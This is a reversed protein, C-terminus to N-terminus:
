ISTPLKATVRVLAESVAPEFATGIGDSIIEFAAAPSFAPRYPRDSILADYVDCVRLVDAEPFIRDGKLGRPYGSGDQNEHHQEIVLGIRKGPLFNHLLEMGVTPHTCIYGREQADLHGPKNLVANEIGVKGVDHYLAAISTIRIEDDTMELELAVLRALHGVRRCHLATYGDKANLVTMLIDLVRSAENRTQGLAFWHGSFERIGM